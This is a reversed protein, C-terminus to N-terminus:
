LRVAMQVMGGGTVTDKKPLVRHPMTELLLNCGFKSTDIGEYYDDFVVVNSGKVAQYDGRITELSHGGDIFVFDAVVDRGHLTNRTNGKILTYALGPYASRLSNLKSKAILHHFIEKGNMECANTEPTADEFLDYGVYEVRSQHQLAQLCMMVSRKGHCVGIEIISKPKTEDILDRLQDYRIM